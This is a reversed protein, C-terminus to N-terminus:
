LRARSPSPGLFLHAGSLGRGLPIAAAGPPGGGPHPTRQPGQGPAQPKRSLYLPLPQTSLCAAGLGVNM